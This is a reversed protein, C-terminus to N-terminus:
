STELKTFRECEIRFVSDQRRAVRKLIISHNRFLAEPPTKHNTRHTTIHEKSLAYEQKLEQHDSALSM